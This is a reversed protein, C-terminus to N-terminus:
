GLQALAEATERVLAAVLEGAPLERTLGTGQGALLFQLDGRDREIGAARIDGVLM